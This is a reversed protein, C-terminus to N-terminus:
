DPVETDPYTVPATYLEQRKFWEEKGRVYLKKKMVELQRDLADSYETFPLDLFDNSLIFKFEIIIGLPHPLIESM